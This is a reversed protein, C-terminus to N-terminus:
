RSKPRSKHPISEPYVSVLSRKSLALVKTSCKINYVIGKTFYEKLTSLNYESLKITIAQQNNRQINEYM